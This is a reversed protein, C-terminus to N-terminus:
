VIRTFKWGQDPGVSGGFRELGAGLGGKSLLAMFRMVQNARPM